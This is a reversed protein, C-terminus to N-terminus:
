LYNFINLGQKKCSYMIYSSSSVLGIIILLLVVINPFQIEFLKLIPYVIFFIALGVISFIIGVRKSLKILIRSIHNLNRIAREEPVIITLYMMIISLPFLFDYIWTFIYFGYQRFVFKNIESLRTWDSSHALIFAVLLGVFFQRNGQKEQLELIAMEIAINSKQGLEISKQGDFRLRYRKCSEIGEEYIWEHFRLATGDALLQMLNPQPTKNCISVYTESLDNVLEKPTCVYSTYDPCYCKINEPINLKISFNLKGNIISNNLKIESKIWSLQELGFCKINETLQYCNDSQWSSYHGGSAICYKQPMKNLGSILLAREPFESSDPLTISYRAEIKEKIKVSDVVECNGWIQSLLNSQDIFSDTKDSFRVQKIGNYRFRLTLKMNAPTPFFNEHGNQGVSFIIATYINLTEGEKGIFIMNFFKRIMIEQIEDCLDIPFIDLSVKQTNM